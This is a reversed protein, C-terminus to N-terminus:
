VPWSCPVDDDAKDNDVGFIVVWTKGPTDIELEGVLCLRHVRNSSLGVVWSNLFCIHESNVTMTSTDAMVPWFRSCVRDLCQTSSIVRATESPM